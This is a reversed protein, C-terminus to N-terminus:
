RQRARNYVREVQERIEIGTLRQPAPARNGVGPVAVGADVPTGPGGDVAPGPENPDVCTAAGTWDYGCVQNLLDCDTTTIRRQGEARGTCRTAVAGDCRGKTSVGGCKDVWRLGQAIFDRTAPGFTAYVAGFDCASKRSPLGGSTVGYVRLEGNVKNILPGGSDGYCPQADGPANGVYAEYGDLLRTNEYEARLWAEPDYGADASGGGDFGGDTPYPEYYYGMEKAWDKFGGYSGFMLEFVRGELARLKVSGARRTGYHRLNDQQGYGIIAYRRGVDGAVLSDVPVPRIDTVAQGLHVIAVDRGFGTFGGYDLPATEVEVVPIRREPNNADPGIGFYMDNYDLYLSGGPYSQVCHKATLVTTPGILTATCIMNYGVSGGDYGSYDYVTGLTGIANLSSSRADVGGIIDEHSDGVPPTPDGGSCAILAGTGLTLAWGVLLLSGRNRRNRFRAFNM